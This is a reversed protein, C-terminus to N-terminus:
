LDQPPYIVNYLGTELEARKEEQTKNKRKAKEGLQCNNKFRAIPIHVVSGRSGFYQKEVYFLCMGHINPNRACRGWRQVLTNLCDVHKAKWQIVREVHTDHIGM